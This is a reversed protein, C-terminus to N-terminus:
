IQSIEVAQDTLLLNTPADTKLGGLLNGLCEIHITDFYTMLYFLSTSSDLFCLTTNITRETIAPKARIKLENKGSRDTKYAAANL